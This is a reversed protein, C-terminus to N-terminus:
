ARLCPSTPSRGPSRWRNWASMDGRPTIFFGKVEFFDSTILAPDAIQSFLGGRDQHPLDRCAMTRGPGTAATGAGPHDGSGAREERIAASIVAVALCIAMGFLFAAPFGAALQAPGPANWCSM